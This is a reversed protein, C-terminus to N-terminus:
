LAAGSIHTVDGEAFIENRPKDKSAHKTFWSYLGAVDKKRKDSGLIIIAITREEGDINAKFLSLMTQRAANTYGTKGGIFNPDSSFHNHNTINYTHEGSYITQSNLRTVDLLFQSHTYVYRALKFLDRATSTNHPSIGSADAIETHEMGIARVQEAMKTIFDNTGYHGALAHAVANNSEMLLPFVTDVAKIEAGKHIQKYDSRVIPTHAVIPVQDDHPITADITLATLLKTISAIPRQTDINKQAYIKGTHVDAVLYARASIRIPMSGQITIPTSYSTTTSLTEDGPLHIYQAYRHTGEATNLKARNNLRYALLESAYAVSAQSQAAQENFSDTYSHVQVLAFTLLAMVSTGLFIESTRLHLQM